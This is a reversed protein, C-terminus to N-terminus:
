SSFTFAEEDLQKLENLLDEASADEITKALVFQDTERLQEVLDNTNLTQPKGADALIPREQETRAISPVPPRNVLLILLACALAAGVTFAAKWEPLRLGLVPALAPYRIKAMVEQTYGSCSSVPIERVRHQSLWSRLWSDWLEARM